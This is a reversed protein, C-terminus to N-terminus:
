NIGGKILKRQLRRMLSSALRRLTYHRPQSESVYSGNEYSSNLSYDHFKKRREATNEGPIISCIFWANLQMCDSVRNLCQLLGPPVASRYISSAIMDAGKVLDEPRTSGLDNNLRSFVDWLGRCAVVSLPLDCPFTWELDIIKVDNHTGDVLINRPTLDIANADVWLPEDALLSRGFHSHTFARFHDSAPSPSSVVKGLLCKEWVEFLRHAESTNKHYLANNLEDALVKFGAHYKEISETNTAQKQTVVNINGEASVKFWKSTQYQPKRETNFKVALLGDEKFPVRSASVLFSNMFVSADANVSLADVLERESYMPMASGGQDESPLPLLTQWNFDKRQFALETLVVSPLKYDPLPYHWNQYRLGAESLMGGLAVRHFTRIGQCNPYNALGEFTSRYHDEPVGALYKYGLQNEIAIVVRGAPKLLKEAAKLFDVYPSNSKIYKGSYELVGIALVVDFKKKSDFDSLNGTIVTLNQANRCRQRIVEARAPAGELATVSAATKLQVLYETVAGCGAGIELIDIACGQDLCLPKIVNERLGSLHYKLAWSRPEAREREFNLENGPQFLTALQAESGDCYDFDVSSATNM